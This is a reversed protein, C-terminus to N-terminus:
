VHSKALWPDKRVDLSKVEVDGSNVLEYLRQYASLGLKIHHRAADLLPGCQQDASNWASDIAETLKTCVQEGDLTILQCASGFQDILSLFKDVYMGSRALGVAPIGQSLAFVATHFCGTVVIRCQAVRRILRVPADLRRSYRVVKGAGGLLRKLVRDDLEHASHSIPVAILEAGHRAAAQLLAPRLVELHDPTVETYHSLRLSVGIAAGRLTARAEYALEIADDGTFVIRSRDVKLSELLPLGVTKDRIFILDVLPLVAQARMRLALDEIPGVGQGVMVTPIKLRHAEELRDLVRLADDRCADSMYQAGTAVFMTAQKIADFAARSPVPASQQGGDRATPGKNKRRSRLYSSTLRNWSLWPSFSPWRARLYERVELLAQLLFRPLRLIIRTALNQRQTWDYRNDPSVPCACPCYLRLLHPASTLVELSAAPWMKSFRAVAVQLLAVNGKNRLDYVGQDFLIRM